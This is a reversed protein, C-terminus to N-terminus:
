DEEKKNRPDFYLLIPASIYVSSYAGIFIGVFAGLSFSQLVNGGFLVLALLSLLTTLSTLFTRSLTSNLSSNIINEMKAKKNKRLDERIRDYIVVSDNISYGIVTLIAAISTLNFEVGSLAYFGVVLIADHLLAIIGGVGFQWDFRIWIYIMLFVLSLSFAFFGKNILEDGIQPGVYDIKRYDIEQFNQGLIKQIEDIEQAQNKSFDTNDFSEQLALRILFNKSDVAQIQAEIKNDEFVQRLEKIKADQIQAEILIGGSFDIGFNLGKQFVLLFSAIVAIVSIIFNIKHFKMFDIKSNSFLSNIVKM